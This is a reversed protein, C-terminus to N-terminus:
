LDLNYQNIKNYLTKRTVQLLKAAKSKNFNTRKLAKLIQAKEYDAKSFDNSRSYLGNSEVMEVPLVNSEITDGVTLM